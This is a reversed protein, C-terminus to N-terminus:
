ELADEEEMAVAVAAAMVAEVEAGAEVKSELVVLATTLVSM